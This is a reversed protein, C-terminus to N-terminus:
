RKHLWGQIGKGLLLPSDYSFGFKCVISITSYNYIINTHADYYCFRSYGFKLYEILLKHEDITKKTKKQPEWSNAGGM